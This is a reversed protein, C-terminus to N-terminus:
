CRSSNEMEMLNEVGTNEDTKSSDKIEIEESDGTLVKKCRSRIVANEKILVKFSERFVQNLSTEGKVIAEYTEM